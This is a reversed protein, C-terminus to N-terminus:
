FRTYWGDADIVAQCRTQMSGICSYIYDVPLHEWSDLLCKFLYDIDQNAKGKMYLLDPHREYLIEKLKAWVHEIPNLDPSYAPWAITWIGHSELYKQTRKATHIRANDQQYMYGPYYAPLLNEDLIKIYSGATYGGGPSEEDRELLGLELKGDLLNIAGWIMVSLQKGKAQPDIMNTDWKQGPTRFVWVRKKGRSLEISAEDSFLIRAWDAATWLVHKIAWALRNSALEETLAPRKKALWKRINHHVL